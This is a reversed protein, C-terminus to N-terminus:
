ATYDVGNDIKNQSSVRKRYLPGAALLELLHADSVFYLRPFVMRKNELYGAIMACILCDRAGDILCPVLLVTLALNQGHREPSLGQFRKFREM